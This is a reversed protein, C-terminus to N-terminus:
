IIERGDYVVDMRRVMPFNRGELETEIEIKCSKCTEEDIKLCMKKLIAM